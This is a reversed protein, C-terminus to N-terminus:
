QRRTTDHYHAEAIPLLEKGIEDLYSLPDDDSRGQDDVPFHRPRIGRFIFVGNM